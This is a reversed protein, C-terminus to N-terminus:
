LAATASTEESPRHNAPPAQHIPRTSSTRKVCVLEIIDSVLEAAGTVIDKITDLVKEGWCIPNFVSCARAPTASGLVLGVAIFLAAFTSRYARRRAAHGVRPPTTRRYGEERCTRHERLVM